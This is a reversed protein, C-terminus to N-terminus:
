EGSKLKMGVPDWYIIKKQFYSENAALCPAAARFGFIPDEVVPKGTRVGEFFNTFHEVHEDFGDPMKYNTPPAIIEKKDEESYKANYEKMLEDQM